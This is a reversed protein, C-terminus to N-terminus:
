AEETTNEEREAQIKAKHWARYDDVMKDLKRERAEELREDEETLLVLRGNKRVYRNLGRLKAERKYIQEDIEYQMRALRATREEALLAKKEAKQIKDKARWDANILARKQVVSHTTKNTKTKTNM